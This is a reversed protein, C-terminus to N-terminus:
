GKRSIPLEDPERLMGIQRMHEGFQVNRHNVLEHGLTTLLQESTFGARDVAVVLVNLYLSVCGGVIGENKVVDRLLDSLRGFLQADNLNQETAQKFLDRFSEGLREYAPRTEAM